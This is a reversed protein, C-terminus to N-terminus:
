GGVVENDMCGDDISSSSSSGENLTRCIGLLDVTRPIGRPAVFGALNVEGAM